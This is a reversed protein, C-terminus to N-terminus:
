GWRALRNITATHWYGSVYESMNTHKYKWPNGPRLPRGPSRPKDPSGPIGTRIENNKM